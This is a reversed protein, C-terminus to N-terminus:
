CAPAWGLIRFCQLCAPLAIFYLCLGNCKGIKRDRAELFLLETAVRPGLCIGALKRSPNVPDGNQESSQIKETSGNAAGCAVRSYSLIVSKLESM